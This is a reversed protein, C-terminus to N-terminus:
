PHGLSCCGHFILSKQFPVGLLRVVVRATSLLHERLVAASARFLPAFHVCTWRMPQLTLTWSPNVVPGYGAGCLRVALSGVALLKRWFHDRGVHVYGLHIPAAGLLLPCCALSTAVYVIAVFSSQSSPMHLDCLAAETHGCKTASPDVVLTHWLGSLPLGGKRRTKALEAVSQLLNPHDCPRTRLSPFSRLSRRGLRRRRLRVM